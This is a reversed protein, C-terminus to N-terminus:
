PHLKDIYDFLGDAGEDVEEDLDEWDDGVNEADLLVDAANSDAGSMIADGGLRTGPSPNGSFGDLAYIQLVWQLIQQMLLTRSIRTASAGSESALLFHRSKNYAEDMLLYQVIYKPLGQYM